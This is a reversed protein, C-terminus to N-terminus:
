VNLHVELKELTKVKCEDCLEEIILEVIEDLKNNYQQLEVVVQGRQIKGEIEALNMLAQRYEKVLSSLAGVTHRDPNNHKMIYEIWSELHKIMKKFKLYYDITSEDMGEVETEKSDMQYPTEPPDMQHKNLHEWAEQRSVNFFDCMEKITRKKNKVDVTWIYGLLGSDCIKCM